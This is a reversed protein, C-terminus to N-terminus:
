NLQFNKTLQGDSTIRCLNSYSIMCQSEIPAVKSSRSTCKFTMEAQTTIEVDMEAVRRMSERRVTEWCYSLKKDRNNPQQPILTGQKCRFIDVPYNEHVVPTEHSFVLSMTRSTHGHCDSNRFSFLLAQKCLLNKEAILSSVTYSPTTRPTVPTNLIGIPRTRRNM